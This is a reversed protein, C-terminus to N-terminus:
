RLAHYATNPTSKSILCQQRAHQLIMPITLKKPSLKANNPFSNNFTLDTFYIESENKNVGLTGVGDNDDLGGSVYRFNSPNLNMRRIADLIRDYQESNSPITAPDLMPKYEKVDWHRKQGNDCTIQVWAVSESPHLSFGFAVFAIILNFKM